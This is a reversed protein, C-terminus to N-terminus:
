DTKNKKSPMVDTLNEAKARYTEGELKLNHCNHLLRDCIGDGLMGGGLYDHWHTTPLQATIITSGVGYRDEIIEFLDQTQLDELPSIGFDDLILVNAKAIKKLQSVYSGDARAVTLSQLLKTVRVYLTSFGNRCANNGLAQALFSKGVGTPGTILISQRKKIWHNQALELVEAKKVGRKHTFDISEICAQSEKFKAARLRSTMKKNQRDQFEDDILLGVFESNSLSSHDPRSLREKFSEAMKGMRMSLMKELTQETIM